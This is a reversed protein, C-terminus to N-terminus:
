DARRQTAKLLEYVQRVNELLEFAPAQRKSVGPWSAGAWMAYMPNSPGFLISGSGDAREQLSIESLNKLSLSKTERSFVGSVILVRHDTVGYLTRSRQYSDVFFRGIIIYIGALVFPIGWLSFFVPANQQLVSYEWFFAFGGWLLSFPIMLVDGARLRIGQRPMGSWLLREGSSLERRLADHSENLM